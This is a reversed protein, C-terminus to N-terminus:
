TLSHNSALNLGLKPQIINSKNRDIIQMVDNLVNMVLWYRVTMAYHIDTLSVTRTSKIATCYKRKYTSSCKMVNTKYSRECADQFSLLIIGWDLFHNVLVGQVGGIVGMHACQTYTYKHKATETKFNKTISM